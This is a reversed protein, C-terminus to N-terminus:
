RLAYYTGRRKGYKTLIDKKVLDEIDYRATRESIKPHMRRYEALTLQENKEFYEQLSRYIM